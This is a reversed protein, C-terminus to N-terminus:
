DHRPKRQAYRRLFRNAYARLPYGAFRWYAECHQSVYVPFGAFTTPMPPMGALQSNQAAERHLAAYAKHSMFIGHPTRLMKEPELVM